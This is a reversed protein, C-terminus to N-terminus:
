SRQKKGGKKVKKLAKALDEFYGEQKRRKEKKKDFSEEHPKQAFSSCSSRSNSIGGANRKLSHKQKQQKKIISSKRDFSKKATSSSYQQVMTDLRLLSQIHEQVMEEKSVKTKSKNTASNINRIGSRKKSDNDYENNTLPVATQQLLKKVLKSSM